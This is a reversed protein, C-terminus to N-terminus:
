IIRKVESSVKLRGDDNIDTIFNLGPTKGVEISGFQKDIKLFRAGNITAWGILTETKIVPFNSQITRIEDLISLSNNSALSDTGICIRDTVQLWNKYDPLRNEIYLNAKPCACWFLNKFEESINNIEEETSFTNHVMLANKEKPLYKLLYNISRDGTPQFVESSNLKFFDDILIKFDGSGDKFFQAEAETEQNHISYIEPHNKNWGYILEMLQPPVSYPAHPTISASLNLERAGLFVKKAIEFYHIADTPNFGYAEIFTHYYIRSKKKELLTHDDNSIDGVAVIGNRCMEENAIEIEQLIVEMKENRISLLDKIFQALGTGHAILNRMYSLELHCHANVFGPCIAGTFFQISTKDHNEISDISLILGADDTTVVSNELLERGTFIKKASYKNM